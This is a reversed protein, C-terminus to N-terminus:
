LRFQEIQLHIVQEEFEPDLLGKMASEIEEIVNYIVRHLRMDVNESFEFFLNDSLSFYTLCEFHRFNACNSTTINSFTLNSTICLQNLKKLLM